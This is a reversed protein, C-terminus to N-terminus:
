SRRRRRTFALLAAAALASLAGGPTAGRTPTLSCGGNADTGGLTVLCHQGDCAGSTCDDTTTCESRCSGNAGCRYPACSLPEGGTKPISTTGDDSCRGGQTCTGGVCSFGPACADSATCSALCGSAGCAFPVCSTTPSAVCTGAGDCRAADSFTAGVCTASGCRKSSGNAFAACAARDKTGDCTRAACVDTGGDACAARGGHPRGSVPACTGISGPVDCAECQGACTADCCVGDVCHGSACGVADTCSGGLPRVCTGEHGAVNCALGAGCTASCCVGDVCAGSACSLSTTCVAGLTRKACHGTADCIAGSVCDSASTCATPCTVALGDCAYAGCSTGPRDGRARLACTGATAGACTGCPGCSASACCVRETCHGSLCDGDLVCAEGSPHATAFVYTVGDTVNAMPAGIVATAGELAVATGYEDLIGVDSPLLAIPGGFAGAVRPYAYAIGTDSARGPAGVVLTDASLGLTVGFQANTGTGDPYALKAQSAWTTGTRTFAYAAGGGGANPAGVVALDGSLAVTHGFKDILAGDAALLTGQLSWSAGSGAFVYAAGAGSPAYEAGVLITGGDIAVSAGFHDNPGADPDHLTAIESWSTGTRAFLYVANATTSSVAALDGRIALAETLGDRPVHAAPVLKAQQTWTSGTRVFVYAADSWSGVIATDGDLAISGAFAGDTPFGAPPKLSAQKTYGDPGRVFVHAEGIRNTGPAAVLLTAGRLAVAHGFGAGPKGYPDALRAQQAGWILPDITLPYRAGRDDIALVVRGNALDIHAAITAGDADTAHLAGYRARTRGRADLLDVHADAGARTPTAGESALELRLEGAGDPKRALTFGQEFGADTTAYWEEVGDGRAYFVQDGRLAPPAHGVDRMAAGRGLRALQLSFRWGTGAVIAGAADYRATLGLPARTAVFGDGDPRVSAPRSSSSAHSAQSADPDAAAPGADLTGEANAEATRAGDHCASLGAGLLAFLAAHTRNM